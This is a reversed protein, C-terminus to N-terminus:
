NKVQIYIGDKSVIQNLSRGIIFLDLEIKELTNNIKELEKSM